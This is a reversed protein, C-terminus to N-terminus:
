LSCLSVEFMIDDRAKGTEFLWQRLVLGMPMDSLNIGSKGFVFESISLNDAIYEILHLVVSCRNDQSLALFM